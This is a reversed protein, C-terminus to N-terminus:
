GLRLRDQLEKMKAYANKKGASSFDGAAAYPATGVGSPQYYPSRRNADVKEQISPQKQEAQHLGLAKINSYVLKQREFTNPMQLITEALEPNKQALKEAHQLVEYFDSNARIWSDKRDSEILNRAKEEAKKDIKEELKKEFSTLRRNLLKHDVFPEDAEEEEEPAAKQQLRRREEEFERSIREKEAREAAVIREYKAELQRFNYEKDNPKQETPQTNQVDITM